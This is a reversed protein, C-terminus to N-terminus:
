HRLQDLIADTITVPKGSADSILVRGVVRDFDRDAHLLQQEADSVTAGLDASDFWAASREYGVSQVLTMPEATYPDILRGDVVHPTPYTAEDLSHLQEQLLQYAVDPAHKTLYDLHIRADRAHAMTLDQEWDHDLRLMPGYTTGTILDGDLDADAHALAHLAVRVDYDAAGQPSHSNTLPVTRLTGDAYLVSPERYDFTAHPSHEITPHPDLVLAVAGPFRTRAAGILRGALEYTEVPEAATRESPRRDLIVAADPTTSAAFRGGQSAPAGAEHRRIGHADISSM